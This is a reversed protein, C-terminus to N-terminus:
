KESGTESVLISSIVEAKGAERLEQSCGILCHIHCYRSFILIGCIHLLIEAM